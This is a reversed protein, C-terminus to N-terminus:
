SWTVAAWPKCFMRSASPFACHLLVLAAFGEWVGCSGRVRNTAATEQFYALRAAMDGAEPRGWLAWAFCFGGMGIGVAGLARSWGPLQQSGPAPVKAKRSSSSSSSSSASPETPEPGARLAMFPIFFINTIFMIATFWAGQLLLHPTHLTTDSWTTAPSHNSLAPSACSSGSTGLSSLMCRSFM